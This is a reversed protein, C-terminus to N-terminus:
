SLNTNLYANIFLSLKGGKMLHDNMYDFPFKIKTCLIIGDKFSRIDEYKVIVKSIRFSTAKPLNIVRFYKNMGYDIEENIKHSRILSLSYNSNFLSDMNLNMYGILYDDHCEYLESKIIENKKFETDKYLWNDPDIELNFEKIFEPSLKQNSSISSWDVKNKFERIFDESM